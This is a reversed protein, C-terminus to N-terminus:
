TRIEQVSGLDVQWWTGIPPPPASGPPSPPPAGIVSGRGPTATGDPCRQNWRRQGESAPRGEACDPPCRQAYDHKSESTLRGLECPPATSAAEDEGTHSCSASGWDGNLGNGSHECRALAHTCDLRLIPWAMLGVTVPVDLVVLLTCLYLPLASM